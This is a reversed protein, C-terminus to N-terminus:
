DWLNKQKSGHELLIAELDSHLEADFAILEQEVGIVAKVLNGFMNAALQKLEELSLINKVIQM